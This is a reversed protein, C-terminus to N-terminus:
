RITIPAASAAVKKMVSTRGHLFYTKEIASNQCLPLDLFYNRVTAHAAIASKQRAKCMRLGTM